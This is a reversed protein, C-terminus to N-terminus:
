LSDPGSADDRQDLLRLIPHRVVSTLGERAATVLEPPKDTCMDVDRLQRDARPGFWHRARDYPEKLLGSNSVDFQEVTRRLGDATAPFVKLPLPM